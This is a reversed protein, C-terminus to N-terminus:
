PWLAALDAISELVLDSDAELELRTSTGTRV